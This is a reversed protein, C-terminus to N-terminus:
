EEGEKIDLTGLFKAVSPPFYALGEWFLIPCDLTTWNEKKIEKDPINRLNYRPILIVFNGDDVGIGVQVYDRRGDYFIPYSIIWKPELKEKM